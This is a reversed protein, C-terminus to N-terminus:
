SKMRARPHASAYAQMLRQADVATYVQTTSLSAHGLLEQITRLDGGRGLLHTAFSHRLAHPTASAPLGLAGRLHQIALQIIRASLQGGRAGVFLPGEPSLQYPCQTLYHEIAERVPAIIPVRRMKQGKGLITMMDLGNIPADKRKINLAESIRLGAGYLLAIVAADRAAIWPQKDAETHTALASLTTAREASLPKPLSHALKPTRVHSFATAQGLGVRELHRMFSRLGALSRLLSRSEVGEQRRAAMYARIMAAPVTILTALTVREQSEDHMFRIFQTVDRQYAEISHPSLRRVASLHNLWAVIHATVDDAAGGFRATDSGTDAIHPRAMRM